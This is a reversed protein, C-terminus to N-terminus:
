VGQHKPAGPFRIVGISASMAAGVSAFLYGRDRAADGMALGRQFVQDTRPASSEASPARLRFRM